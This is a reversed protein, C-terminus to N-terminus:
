NKSRKVAPKKDSTKGQAPLVREGKLTSALKLAEYANVIGGTRCLEQFSIKAESGPMVVEEKVPTVTREIVDKVQPASLTPYHSLILAALGAV